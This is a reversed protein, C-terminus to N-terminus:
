AANPEYRLANHKPPRSNKASSVGADRPGTNRLSIWNIFNPDFLLKPCRCYPRDIPACSPIPEQTAADISGLCKSRSIGLRHYHAHEVHFMRAVCRGNGQTADRWDSVPGGIWGPMRGMEKRVRASAEVVSKARGIWHQKSLAGWDHSSTGRPVSGFSARRIAAPMAAYRGAFSRGRGSARRRCGHLFRMAAFGRKPRPRFASM